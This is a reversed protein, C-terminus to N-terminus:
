RLTCNFREIYSTKGTEKGVTRHCKSPLVTPYALWFGTYCVAGQRYVPPLSDWLKQTSAGSRDGIYCGVIERTEVDLALWVWM